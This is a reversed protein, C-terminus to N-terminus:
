FKYGKAKLRLNSCNVLDEGKAGGFLGLCGRDLVEGLRTSSAGLRNRPERVM